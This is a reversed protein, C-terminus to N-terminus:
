IITVRKGPIITNIMEVAIIKTISHKKGPFFIFVVANGTARTPCYNVKYRINTGPGPTSIQM